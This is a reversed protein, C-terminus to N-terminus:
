TRDQVPLQSHDQMGELRTRKQYCTVAQSQMKSIDQTCHVGGPM